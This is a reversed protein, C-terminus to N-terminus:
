LSGLAQEITRQMACDSDRGQPALLKEVEFAHDKSHARLQDLIAKGLKHELSPEDPQKATPPRSRPPQYKPRTSDATKGFDSMSRPKGFDSMSRPKRQPIEPACAVPAGDVDSGEEEEEQAREPPVWPELIESLSGGKSILDHTRSLEERLRSLGIATVSVALNRKPEFPDEISPGFGSSGDEHVISHLQLALPPAMRRARRVSVAEESWNVRDKYFQIFGEFLEAVSLQCEPPKWEDLLKEGNADVGARGRRVVLGQVMKFGQLAPLLPGEEVGVQLYYVVLLTWAYPPLHGKPAHCIGRDKAFRRVLLILNKARPEILAIEDILASNYLSMGCNVSFDFAVAQNSIGPVPPAMLTVKPEMARFASRRFKYCGSQVLYDTCLRVALKQLKRPELRSPPITNKRVQKQLGAVLQRNGVEVIIEVEPVAVAFATGRSIDGSVIGVVEVEPIMEQLRMKVRQALEQVMRNCQPSPEIQTILEDIQDVFRETEFTRALVPKNSTQRVEHEHSPARVVPAQRGSLGSKARWYGDGAARTTSAGSKSQVVRHKSQKQKKPRTWQLTAAAIAGALVLALQPIEIPTTLALCVAVAFCVMHLSSRDKMLSASFDWLSTSPMASAM